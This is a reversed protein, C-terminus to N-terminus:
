FPHWKVCFAHPCRKDRFYSSIVFLRLCFCVACHNRILRCNKWVFINLDQKLIIKLVYLSVWGLILKHRHKLLLQVNLIVPPKANECCRFIIRAQLTELEYQTRLYTTEASTLTKSIVPKQANICYRFFYWVYSLSLIKSTLLFKLM